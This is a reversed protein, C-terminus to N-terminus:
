GLSVLSEYFQSKDTDLRVCFLLVVHYCNFIVIDLYRSNPFDAGRVSLRTERDALVIFGDHTLVTLLTPIASSTSRGDGM